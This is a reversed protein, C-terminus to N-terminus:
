YFLRLFPFALFHYFVFCSFDSIVFTKMNTDNDLVQRFAMSGGCGPFECRGADEVALSCGLGINEVISGGRRTCLILSPRWIIYACLALIVALFSFM